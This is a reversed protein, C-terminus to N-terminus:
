RRRRRHRRIEAALRPRPAVQRRLRHHLGTAQPLRRRHAPRARDPPPLLRRARRVQLRSRWAYRGTLIGYRTPTCVASGSHADTFAMGQAALRDLHPTPIKGEPNLAHVDGYGLDDALIYVINPRDAAAQHALSSTALFLALPLTLRTM